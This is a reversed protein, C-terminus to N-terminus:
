STTPTGQMVPTQGLAQRSTLCMPKLLDYSTRLRNLGTLMQEESAFFKTKDSGHACTAELAVYEIV